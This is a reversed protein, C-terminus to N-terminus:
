TWLFKNYIVSIVQDKRQQPTGNLPVADINFQQIIEPIKVQDIQKSIEKSHIRNPDTSSFNNPIMPCYFLYDYLKRHREIIQKTNESITNLYLLTNFISGDSIIVINDGCSKIMLNELNEQLELIKEQHSDELKPFENPSLGLLIREQAILIRAQEMVFEAPIGHAKLEAFTIAATTTKGSSPCGLFGILM